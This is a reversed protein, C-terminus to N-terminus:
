HTPRCAAAALLGRWSARSTPLLNVEMPGTYQRSPHSLLSEVDHRLADDGYCADALFAARENAPRELAALCIREVDALNSM